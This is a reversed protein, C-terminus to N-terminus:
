GALIISNLRGQTQIHFSPIYTLTKQLSYTGLLKNTFKGPEQSTAHRHNGVIFSVGVISFNM